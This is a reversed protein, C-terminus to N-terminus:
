NRRWMKGARDQRRLVRCSTAAAVVVVISSQAVVHGGDRLTLTLSRPHKTTKTETSTHAIFVHAFDTGVITAHSLGFDRTMDLPRRRRLLSDRKENRGATKVFLYSPLLATSKQFM